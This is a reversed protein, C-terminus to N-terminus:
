FGLALCLGIHGMDVALVSLLRVAMRKKKGLVRTNKVTKGTRGKVGLNIHQVKRFKDAVTNHRM